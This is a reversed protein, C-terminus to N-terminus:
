EKITFQFVNKGTAEISLNEAYKIFDEIYDFKPIEVAIIDQSSNLLEALRVKIESKTLSSFHNNQMIQVLINKYLEEDSSIVYRSPINTTTQTQKITKYYNIIKVKKSLTEPKQYFLTPQKLAMQVFASKSIGLIKASAEVNMNITEPKQYLLQPQKLAANTFASKSIGLIKASTEVNNNVTEPKMNFLQPRKIAVQIYKEKSVRLKKATEKINKNLTESLYSFLQPKKIAVEIYKEKPIDFTKAASEINKNLTKPSQYLLAPQQLGAKILSAKPIGLLKASEEINENFTTQKQSLLQPQKLLIKISEEKSTELMEAFSNIKNELTESKYSLLQPRKLAISIFQEKSINFIKASTEINKNITKPNQCLLLPNKLAMKVFENKSIKFEKTFAEINRKIVEPSSSLIQIHSTVMNLVKDFTTSLIDSLNSILHQNKESILGNQKQMQLIGRNVSNRVTATGVGEQAAIEGYTLGKSRRKVRLRTSKTMRAKKISVDLRNKIDEAEIESQAVPLQDSTISDVFTISRSNPIYDDLSREQYNFRSLLKNPHYKDIKQILDDIVNKDNIEYIFEWFKVKIDSFVEELNYSAKAKLKAEQKLYPLFVKYLDIAFVNKSELNDKNKTINKLLKESQNLDSPALKIIGFSIRDNYPNIQMNKLIGYFSKYKKLVALYM